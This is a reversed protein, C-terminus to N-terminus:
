TCISDDGDCHEQRDADPDATELSELDEELFQFSACIAFYCPSRLGLLAITWPLLFVSDLNVTHWM